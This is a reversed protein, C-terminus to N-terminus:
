RLFLIRLSFFAPVSYSLILSSILLSALICLFSFELIGLGSDCGVILYTLYASSQIIPIHPLFSAAVSNFFVRLPNRSFRFSVSESSFVKIVFALDSLALKKPVSILLYADFLPTIIVLGLFDRLLLLIGEPFMQIANERRAITLLSADFPKISSLFPLHTLLDTDLKIGSGILSIMSLYLDM